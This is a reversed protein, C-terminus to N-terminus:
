CSRLDLVYFVRLGFIALDSVVRLCHHIAAMKESRDHLVRCGLSRVFSRYGLDNGSKGM